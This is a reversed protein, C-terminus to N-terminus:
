ESSYGAETLMGLYDSRLKELVGQREQEFGQRALSIGTAHSNEAEEQRAAIKNLESAKHREAKMPLKAKATRMRSGLAMKGLRVILWLGVIGVGVLEPPVGSLLPMHETIDAVASKFVASAIAIAGGAPVGVKKLYEEIPIVTKELREAYSAKKNAYLETVWKEVSQKERLLEEKASALKEDLMCLQSELRSRAEMMEVVSRLALKRASLLLSKQGESKGMFDGKLTIIVSGYKPGYAGLEMQAAEDEPHKKVYWSLYLFNAIDGMVDPSVPPIQRGRHYGNIFNGLKELLPFRKLLYSGNEELRGRLEETAKFPHGGELLIGDTDKKLKTGNLKATETAKQGLLEKKEGNLKRSRKRYNKVPTKEELLKEQPFGNSKEKRSGMTAPAISGNRYLCKLLPARGDSDATNNRGTGNGFDAAYPVRFVGGGM